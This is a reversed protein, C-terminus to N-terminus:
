SIRRKKNVRKMLRPRWPIGSADTIKFGYTDILAQARGQWANNKLEHDQWPWEEVTEIQLEKLRAMNSFDIKDLIRTIIGDGNLLDERTCVDSSLILKEFPSTKAYLLQLYSGRPNGTFRIVQAKPFSPLRDYPIDTFGTPGFDLIFDLTTVSPFDCSQLMNFASLPTCRNVIKLTVLSDFCSRGTIDSTGISPCKNSIREAYLILRTLNRFQTLFRQRFAGGTINLRLGRLGLKVEEAMYDLISAYESDILLQQLSPLSLAIRKATEEATMSREPLVRIAFPDDLGSIVLTNVSSSNDIDELLKRSIPFPWRPPCLPLFRLVLSSAIKQTANDTCIDEIFNTFRVYFARSVRFLELARFKYTKVHYMTVALLDVGLCKWLDMEIIHALVSDPLAPVREPYEPSLRQSETTAQQANQRVANGLTAMMTFSNKWFKSCALEFIVRTPNLKPLGQVSGNVNEERSVPLRLYLDSIGPLIAFTKGVVAGFSGELRIRRVYGKVQSGVKGRIFGYFANAQASSRLVVCEHLLPTGIRLWRKSVLLVDSSSSVKRGFPSSPGVHSFEDEPVTLIDSLIEKVLEDPLSHFSVPLM